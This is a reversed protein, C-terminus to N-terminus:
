VNETVEKMSLQIVRERFYNSLSDDYYLDSVGRAIVGVSTPADVIDKQVGGDMLYEKVEDIYSRILDDQYTGTFGNLTKVKELLNVEAM